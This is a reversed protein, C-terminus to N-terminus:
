KWFITNYCRITIKVDYYNEEKLMLQYTGGLYFKDSLTEVPFTIIGLSVLPEPETRTESFWRRDVPPIYSSYSEYLPQIYHEVIEPETRDGRFDLYVLVEKDGIDPIIAPNLEINLFPDDILGVAVDKYYKVGFTNLYHNKFYLNSQEFSQETTREGWYQASTMVPLLLILVILNKM